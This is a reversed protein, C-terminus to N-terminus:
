IRERLYSAASDPRDASHKTGVLHLCGTETLPREPRSTAWRRNEEALSEAKAVKPDNQVEAVREERNGM